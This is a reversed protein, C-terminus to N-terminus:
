IYFVREIDLLHRWIRKYSVTVDSWRLRGFEVCLLFIPTVIIVAVLQILHELAFLILRVWTFPEMIVMSLYLLFGELKSSM